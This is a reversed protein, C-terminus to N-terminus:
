HIFLLLKKSILFRKTMDKKLKEVYFKTVRHPQGMWVRDQMERSNEEFANSTVNCQVKAQFAKVRLTNLDGKYKHHREGSLIVNEQYEM